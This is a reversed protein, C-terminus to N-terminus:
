TPQAERAAQAFEAVWCAWCWHRVPAGRKLLFLERIEESGPDVVVAAAGCRDCTV